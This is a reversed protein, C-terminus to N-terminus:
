KLSFPPFPSIHKGQELDQLLPPAPFETKACNVTSTTISKEFSAKITHYFTMRNKINQSLKYPIPITTFEGTLEPFTLSTPEVGPDPLDGPPPCLLGSWNEQRPIGM